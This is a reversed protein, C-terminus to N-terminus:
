ISRRQRRAAFVLATTGLLMLLGAGIPMLPSVDVGTAALSLTVPGLRSFQLVTCSSDLEYWVRDTAPDGSSSTGTLTLTHAGAVCAAAPVAFTDSFDGDVTATGSRLTVPDSTQVLTYASSAQLNDGLLQLTTGSLKAGVPFDTLIAVGDVEFTGTDTTSGATGSGAANTSTVTCDYASGPTFGVLTVPNSTSTGSVTDTSDTQSVCTVTSSDIPENNDDYIWFEASLGNGTRVVDDIYPQPAQLVHLLSNLAIANGTADSAVIKVAWYTGQLYLDTFVDPSVCHSPGLTLIGNVFTSCPLQTAGFYPSDSDTVFSYTVAGGEPDVASFDLVTDGVPKVLEYLSLDNSVPPLNYSSGTKTFRAWNSFDSTPTNEVGGIRCCSSAYVEYIGDALSSLDGQLIETSHDYLPNSDDEAYSSLALNVGTSAGSDPEDSISSLQYVGLTDGVTDSFIVDADDLAWASDLTWTAADGAVTFSTASARFHSANAPLAGVLVLPVAALTAVAAATKLRYKM